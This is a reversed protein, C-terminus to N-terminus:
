NQKNRQSVAIGKENQKESIYVLFCDGERQREIYIDLNHGHFEPQNEAATSLLGGCLRAVNCKYFQDLHPRHVSATHRRQPKSGQM